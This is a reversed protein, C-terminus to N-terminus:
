KTSATEARSILYLLVALTALFGLPAASWALERGNDHPRARALFRCAVVVVPYATTGGIFAGMAIRRWSFPSEGKPRLSRDALAAAQMVNAIIVAPYALLPLLSLVFLLTSLSFKFPM